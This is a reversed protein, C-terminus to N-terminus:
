RLLGRVSGFRVVSVAEAESEDMDDEKWGSCALTGGADCAGVGGM